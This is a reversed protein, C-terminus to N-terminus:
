DIIKHIIEVCENTGAYCQHTVSTESTLTKNVVKM